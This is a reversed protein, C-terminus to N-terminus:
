RIARRSARRSAIALVKGLGLRRREGVFQARQLSVALGGAPATGLCSCPLLRRGEFEGAHLEVIGVSDQLSLDPILSMLRTMRLLLAVVSRVARLWGVTPAAVQELTHSTSGSRTAEGRDAGDANPLRMMPPPLLDEHKSHVVASSMKVAPWRSDAM